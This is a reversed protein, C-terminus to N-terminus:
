VDSIESAISQVFRIFEKMAYSLFAEKRWILILHWPLFPEALPLSRVHQNAIKKCITEPMITIGLNEAVMEAQLDWQSSEHIIKPEYGALRCASEIHSRISFDQPFLIFKEHKLDQITVFSKGVLSHSEHVVLELRQQILPRVEFSEENVPAVVIGLDLIGEHVLQEIRRAGEEVIQYEILPYQAHFNAVLRPFFASSVVPPLGIVLTGRQLDAVEELKVYLEDVAKIIAQFQEVAALGSDTM